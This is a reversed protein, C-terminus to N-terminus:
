KLQKAAEEPAVTIIEIGTGIEFGAWKSIRPLIEIHWHYHEIHETTTPATHIFFNYAPNNLKEYIKNLCIRFIEALQKEQNENIKEFNPSHFKPFIRVEYNVRSAFPCFAIFHENEFILRSKDKLEYEIMVCHVCKGEKHYYRRSGDLSSQVDPPIISIGFIQSHPHYISAGAEKGYNHM